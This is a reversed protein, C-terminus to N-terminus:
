PGLPNGCPCAIVGAAGPDCYPIFTGDSSGYRTDVIVADLSLNPVAGQFTITYATVADALAALNWTFLSEVNVGVAPYRALETYSTFPISHSQGQGDVYTLVPSAYDLESGWTSIQLAVEQLDGPGGDVLRFAPAASPHYINGSGTLFAGSVLQELTADVTTSGADDPLNTGAYPVTFAEWSGFETGPNGRFPPVYPNTFGARAADSLASAALLVSFPLLLRPVM